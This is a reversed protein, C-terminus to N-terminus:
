DPPAARAISWDYFRPFATMAGAVTRVIHSTWVESCPRRLCRVVARAVREPPQVFMRPSHKPLDANTPDCESVSASVKFFETTTTIPHVSSVDIGHSKLEHRMASCISNQAAKTASYAGHNPLAFKSLCSSCMLLHGSRGSRLLRRGAARLLEVGAFFNVDFMRRLQEDTNDLVQKTMGYGANAFVSHFSGFEKEAADLMRESIGAETVDGTVIAARRGLGKVSEAVRKLRDERRANIVLDMGARACEVATAAGIGSSVGTIIIVKGTLDVAM